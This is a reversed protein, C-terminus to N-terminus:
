LVCSASQWGTGTRTNIWRLAIAAVRCAAGVQAQKAQAVAGTFQDVMVEAAEM